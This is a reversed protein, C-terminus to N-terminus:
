RNAVSGTEPDSAPAGIPTRQSGVLWAATNSGAMPGQFARLGALIPSHDFDPLTRLRVRYEVGFMAVVLVLSLLNAFISWVFFPALFFLGLSIAVIAGFLLFWVLTVRRTYREVEPPLEGHVERAFHTCLPERGPLLSRGFALGLLGYISVHETLYLYFVSEGSAVRDRLWWVGLVALACLALSLVRWRSRWALAFGALLLPALLFLRNSPAEESYAAFYHFLVAYAVVVLGLVIWRRFM